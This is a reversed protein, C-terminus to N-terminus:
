QWFNGQSGAQQQDLLASSQPNFVGVGEDLQAPHHPVAQQQEKLERRQRVSEKVIEGTTRFAQDATTAVLGLPKGLVKGIRNGVHAANQNTCGSFLILALICISILKILRMM